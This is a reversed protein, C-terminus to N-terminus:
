GGPGSPRTRGKRTAKERRSRRCLGVVFTEIETRPSLDSSKLRSDVRGLEQLVEDLEEGSFAEVLSFYENLRDFYWRGYSETIRPRVERFIEKKDRGERLGERGALIGRLFNSLIGLIYQPPEGSAFLQALVALCRGEDGSALANEMEWSELDKTSGSAARVDEADITKKDGVYTALKDLELDLRQLDNGVRDSLRSKAESTLSKGWNAVRRDMWSGLSRDKLPKLEVARVISPPFSTFFKVVRRSFTVKGPLIIVLVTRSSPSTLYARLLGEDAECFGAKGRPEGEEKKGPPPLELSIVRWPSFIFPATRALDIIEPWSTDEFHFREVNFDRGDPPVLLDRLQDLFERALFTEPGYLFYCPVIDKEQLDTSLLFSRL